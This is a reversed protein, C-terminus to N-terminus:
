SGSIVKPVVLLHVAKRSEAQTGPAPCSAALLQVHRAHNAAAPTSAAPHVKAPCIRPPEAAHSNGSCIPAPIASHRRLASCAFRSRSPRRSLLPELTADDIQREWLLPRLSSMSIESSTARLAASTQFEILSKGRKKVM